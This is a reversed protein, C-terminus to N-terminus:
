NFVDSGNGILVINTSNKLSKELSHFKSKETSTTLTLPENHRLFVDVGSFWWM